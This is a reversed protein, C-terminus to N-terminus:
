GRDEDKRETRPKCSQLGIQSNDCIVAGREPASLFGDRQLVNDISAARKISRVNGVVDVISNRNRSRVPSIRLPGTRDPFSPPLRFTGQEARSGLSLVRLVGQECAFRHANPKATM